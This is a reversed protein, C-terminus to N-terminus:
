VNKTRGLKEEALTQLFTTWGQVAETSDFLGGQHAMIKKHIHTRWEKDTGLRVAMHVYDENSHAICDTVRMYNYLFVGCRSRMMTGARTVIPVGVSLGQFSTNGGNFTLPDLMVDAAMLTGMFDIFSRTPLIHVRDIVKELAKQSRKRFKAVWSNESCILVLVGQPDRELIQAFISDMSYDIKFLSQPCMYVTAGEPIGMQQHTQPQNPKQPRRYSVYMGPLRVLKETYHADSEPTELGEASIYYDVTSIGTTDPHGTTVAQLPALRKHALFYTIPHMGIDTYIIMDQPNACLAQTADELHNAVSIVHDVHSALEHTLTDGQTGIAMLTVSFLDKPLGMILDRYVWGVAHELLFNSVFAIRIKGEPSPPPADPQCHPAVFNLSPIVDRYFTSIFEFLERDERGHYSAFFTTICVQKGPDQIQHGAARFEEMTRRLQSRWHDIEEENTPMILPVLAQRLRLTPDHPSLVCAKEFAQHAEKEMALDGYVGGLTSLADVYDPKLELAKKLSVLSMDFVRLSQYVLGLNYSVEPLQPKLSLAKKYFALAEHHHGLGEHINGLNNYGEAYTPNLTLAREAATIAEQIHRMEWLSNSLNSWAVVFSPNLETAKIFSASAGEYDKLLLQLAGKNNYADAFDPRLAIAKEALVLGEEGKGLGRYFNALNSYPDALQPSFRLSAEYHFKAQDMEKLEYYCNALNNHAEGDEPRFALLQKLAEKAEQFRGLSLNQRSMNNLADLHHPDVEVAKKFAALSETHRSLTGLFVGLSNYSDAVTPDIEISRQILQIAELPHGRKFAVVAQLSLLTPHHPNLSAAQSYLTHAAELNNQGHAALGRQVLQEFAGSPHASDRVGNFQSGKQNQSSSARRQKRNM